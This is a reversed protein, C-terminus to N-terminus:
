DAHRLICLELTYFHPHYKLCGDSVVDHCNNCTEKNQDQYWLQILVVILKNSILM